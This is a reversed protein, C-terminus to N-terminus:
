PREAWIRLFFVSSAHPPNTYSMTDGTGAIRTYNQVPTWLFINTSAELTYLANTSSEWSFLLAAADLEQEMLDSFVSRLPEALGDGALHLAFVSGANEPDSGAIDEDMNSVGDLDSDVFADAMGYAPEQPSWGKEDVINRNTDMLVVHKEGLSTNFYDDSHAPCVGSGHEAPNQKVEWLYRFDEDFPNRVRWYGNWIATLRYKGSQAYIVETTTKNGFVDTAVVTQLHYHGNLPKVEYRYTDESVRAALDDNVRVSAVAVNDTVVIKMWLKNSVTVYGDPPWIAVIVPPIRDDATTPEYVGSLSYADNGSITVPIDPPSIWGSLPFFTVVYDGAPLNWISAGSEQWNTEPGTAIRWAAGLTRVDGPLLEVRICGLPEPLPTYEYAGMDVIGAHIRPRGSLDTAASM